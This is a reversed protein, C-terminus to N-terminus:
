SSVRFFKSFLGGGFPLVLLGAQYECEPRANCPHICDGYITKGPRQDKGYCAIKM